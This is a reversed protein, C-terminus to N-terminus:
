YLIERITDLKTKADDSAFERLKEDSGDSIDTVLRILDAVPSGLGFVRVKECQNQPLEPPYHGLGHSALQRSIVEVVYSGLKGSGNLDRLEGMDLTIVNAANVVAVKLDNLSSFRTM